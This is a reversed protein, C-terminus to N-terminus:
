YDEQHVYDQSVTACAAELDEDVFEPVCYGCVCCCCCCCCCCCGCYFGTVIGCFVGCSVAVVQLCNHFLIRMKLKTLNERFKRAHTRKHTHTHTRAHTRAYTRAHTRTHTHAHTRTHTHAHAFTLEYPHMYVAHICLATSWGVKQCTTLEDWDANGQFQEAARLGYLGVKDYIKRKKPDNLIVYAQNLMRFQLVGCM